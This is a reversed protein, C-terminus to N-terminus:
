AVTIESAQPREPGVVRHRAGEHEVAPGAAMVLVTSGTPSARGQMPSRIALQDAARAARLAWAAGAGRQFGAPRFTANRIADRALEARQQLVHEHVGALARVVVWRQDSRKSCDVTAAYTEVSLLIRTWFAETVAHHVVRDHAHDLREELPV